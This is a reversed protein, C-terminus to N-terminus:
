NLSQQSLLYRCVDVVLVVAFLCLFGVLGGGCNEAAALVAPLAATAPLGPSLGPFGPGPPKLSCPQSKWYVWMYGQRKLDNEM